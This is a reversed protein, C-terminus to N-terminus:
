SIYGLERLRETIKEQLTKNVEIDGKIKGIYFKNVAAHEGCWKGWGGSHGEIKFTINKNKYNNMVLSIRKWGDSEKILDEYVTDEIGNEINLIKIKIIVDSDGCSSNLYKAINAVEAVLVYFDNGLSINQYLFTMTTFNKPHILVIGLNDSNEPVSGKLYCGDSYWSDREEKPLNNFNLCLENTFNVNYIIDPNFSVPYIHSENISILPVMFIPYEPENKIIINPVDKKRDELWKLLEVELEKEEILNKNTLNFKEKTDKKLDYFEKEGNERNYILKFYDSRISVSSDLLSYVNRKTKEKNTILDLLSNGQIKETTNINLLRLVTPMLDISAVQDNIIKHEIRPIYFILPVRIVEDYLDGGHGFGDYRDFLHQGHDATIIIVTKEKLNLKELKNFLEGLNKDVKQLNEDYYEIVKHKNEEISLNIKNWESGSINGYPGHVEMVHLYLFFKNNQNKELFDFARENISEIGSFEPQLCGRDDYTDFGKNFGFYSNVYCAGIFGATTYNNKKLAEPLTILKTNELFNQETKYSYIYPYTSSFISSMSPLTWSSQSFANKFVISKGSLEDINPTTNQYYGYCSLHDTRLADIIILIVNCNDCFTNNELNLFYLRSFVFLLILILIIGYKKM